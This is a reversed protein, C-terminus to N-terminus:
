RCCVNGPAGLPGSLWASGLPFGMVDQAQLPSLVTAQLAHVVLQIFIMRPHLRSQDNAQYWWNQWRNISGEDSRQVRLCCKRCKQVCKMPNQSRAGVPLSVALSMQWFMFFGPSLIDQRCNPMPRCPMVISTGMGTGLQTMLLRNWPLM